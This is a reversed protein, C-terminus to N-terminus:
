CGVLQSGIYFAPRGPVALSFTRVLWSNLPHRAGSEVQRWRGLVQPHDQGGEVQEREEGAEQQGEGEDEGVGDGHGESVCLPAPGVDTVGGGPPISHKVSHEM